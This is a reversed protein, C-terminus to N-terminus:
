CCSCRTPAFSIIIRLSTKASIATVAAPAAV